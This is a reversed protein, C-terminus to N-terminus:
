PAVELEDEDFWFAAYSIDRTTKKTQKDFTVLYRPAKLELETRGNNHRTKVSIVKGTAGQIVALVDRSWEDSRTVHVRVRQNDDFKRM